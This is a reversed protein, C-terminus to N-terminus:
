TQPTPTDRVDESTVDEGLQTRLDLLKKTCEQKQRKLDQRKEEAASRKKTVVTSMSSRCAAVYTMERGYWQQHDKNLLVRTREYEALDCMQEPTILTQIHVSTALSRKSFPHMEQTIMSPSDPSYPNDHPTVRHVLCYTWGVMLTHKDHMCNANDVQHELLALASRFISLASSSEYEFGVLAVAKGNPRTHFRNTKIAAIGWDESWMGMLVNREKPDPVSRSNLVCYDVFRRKQDKKAIVADMYRQGEGSENLMQAALSANTAIAKQYAEEAKGMAELWLPRGSSWRFEFANVPLFEKCDELLSATLNNEIKNYLCLAVQSAFSVDVTPKSLHYMDDYMSLTLTTQDPSSSEGEEAMPPVQEDSSSNSSM